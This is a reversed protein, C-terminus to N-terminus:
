QTESLDHIKECGLYLEACFRQKAYTGKNYCLMDFVALFLKGGPMRRAAPTLANRVQDIIRSEQATLETVIGGIFIKCM